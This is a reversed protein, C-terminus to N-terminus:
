REQKLFHERYPAKFLTHLRIACNELIDGPNGEGALSSLTEFSRMIM